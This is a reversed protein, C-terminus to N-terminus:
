CMPRSFPASRRTEPTARAVHPSVARMHRGRLPDTLGPAGVAEATAPSCTPWRSVCTAYGKTLRDLADLTLHPTVIERAHHLANILLVPKDAPADSVNATLKLLPLARGQLRTAIRDM